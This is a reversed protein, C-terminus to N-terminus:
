AAFDSWSAPNKDVQATLRLHLKVDLLITPDTAHATADPYGQNPSIQMHWEGRPDINNIAPAQVIRTANPESLGFAEFIVPPRSKKSGVDFVNAAEPPFVVASFSRYKALPKDSDPTSISIGIGRLRLRKVAAAFEKSLDFTALSGKSILDKWTADSYFSNSGTPSGPKTARGQHLYVVHDFDVEEITAREVQDILDRVFGVMYDLYGFEVPEDLKLNLGFLLNCASFLCRLKQFAIGVDKELLDRLRSFREGYNL